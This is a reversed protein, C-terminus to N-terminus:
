IVAVVFMVFLIGAMLRFVLSDLEQLLSAVPLGVMHDVTGFFPYLLIAGVAAIIGIKLVGKVFEMISRLSFLRQFGKIPSIKAIDPKIVEPAFIPGVQLFPGLFAAAILILLPLLL